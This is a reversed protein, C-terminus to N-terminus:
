VHRAGALEFAQDVIRVLEAGISPGMVVLAGGVIVLRIAFPLTQDQIQFVSLVLSIVIGAGAAALVLGVSTKFAFFLAHQFLILSEPM